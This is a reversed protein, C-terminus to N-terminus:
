VSDRTSNKENNASSTGTASLDVYQRGNIDRILGLTSAGELILTFVDAARDIPVGMESLVNRGITDKPLSAGNYKALFEGIVRPKLFAQRKAVLDQGEETPKFIRLGLPELEIQPSNYGGKTLGYAIAAGTLMRFNGSGPQIEMAAAVQLPITPKFGLSEALAQPVRLARDLSCGPVDAQSLYKREKKEHADLAPATASKAVPSVKEKKLLNQKQACRGL